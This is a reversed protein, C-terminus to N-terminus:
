FKHENEIDKRAQIVADRILQHSVEVKEKNRASEKDHCSEIIDIIDDYVDDPGLYDYHDPSYPDNFIKYKIAVTKTMCLEVGMYFDTAFERRTWNSPLFDQGFGDEMFERVKNSVKM